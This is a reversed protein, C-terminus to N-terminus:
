DKKREFLKELREAGDELLNELGRTLANDTVRSFLNVLSSTDAQPKNVFGRIPIELHDTKTYKALKKGLLQETLPISLCYDIEGTALHTKGQCRLKVAAIRATLEDTALIGNEIAIHIAQDELYAVKERIRLLALISGLSGNPAVALDHTLLTFHANLSALPADDLVMTFDNVVGSFAGQPTVNGSFLPNVFKLLNDAMAQTLNFHDILKTGEPITVTYPPMAVNVRPHLRITGGNAAIDSDLAVVGERLTATFLADRLMLGPVEITEFTVHAQAVGENLIGPVGLNIPATFTFPHSKKGSLVVRERYPDFIPLTWITAVDPTLVGELHLINNELTGKADFAAYPMQVACSRLTLPEGIHMDVRADFPLAFTENTVLKFTDSACQAVLNDHAFDADFAIEGQVKLPTEDKGWVRYRSLIREPMLTGKAKVATPMLSAVSGEARLIPSLLSVKPLTIKGSKVQLTATGSLLEAESVKWATSSFEVGQLAFNASGECDTLSGRLAANLYLTGKPLTPLGLPPAFRLATDITTKTTLKLATFARQQLDIGNCEATIDFVEKGILRVQVDKAKGKVELRVTLPQSLPPMAHFSAFTTMLTPVDCEALLEGEDLSGSGSAMLGPLNVSLRQISSLLINETHVTALLDIYPSVTLAKGQVTGVIPSANLSLKLDAVRATKPTFAGKLQVRGSQVEVGQTDVGFRRALTLAQALALDLEGHVKPLAEGTHELQGALTLWSAKYKLEAAKLPLGIGEHKMILAALSPTKVRGEAEGDLLRGAFTVLLPAQLTSLEATIDMYSVLAEESGNIFLSADSIRLAGTVDWAPLVPLVQAEAGQVGPVGVVAKTEEKQALAMKVVPSTVTVDATIKGIPLLKWLSSVSVKEISVEMGKTADRYQVRSLTQPSFWAFEGEAFDVEAPALADNLKALGWVQVSRIGAITPLLLVGVLLTVLVSGLLILLLRGWRFPQNEKRLANTPRTFDM